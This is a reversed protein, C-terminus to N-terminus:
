FLVACHPVSHHMLITNLDQILSLFQFTYESGLSFTPLNKLVAYSLIVNCNGIKFMIVFGLKNPAYPQM